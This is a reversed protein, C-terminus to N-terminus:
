YIRPVQPWRGTELLLAVATEDKHSAAWPLPTRDKENGSTTDAGEDLFLQITSLNGHSAVDLAM